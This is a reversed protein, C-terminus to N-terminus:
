SQREPFGKVILWLALILHSLALPMIMLLVISYGFIPMTVASLQLLAALLGFGALVRPVLSFRYLISYLVFVSVGGVILTIYHAWNRTSAVVGRLIQFLESDAGNAETYTQSLSLASLLSMNEFATLTFGVIALALFWLAMSYSYQRFVPLAAIAIGVSLAGTVLGILVAISIQLSHAAANVLFGPAAFVPAMLVFNVTVGAVIQVLLLVGIIRGIGKATGM